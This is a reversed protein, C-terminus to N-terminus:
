IAPCSTRRAGKERIDPAFCLPALAHYFQAAFNRDDLIAPGRELSALVPSLRAAVQALIADIRAHADSEVAPQVNSALWAVLDRRWRPTRLRRIGGAVAARCAPLPNVSM